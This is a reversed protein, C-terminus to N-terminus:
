AVPPEWLEIPNGEPDQIRAFRGVGDMEERHTAAIGAAELRDLLADLREVRLNLMFQRDQAFYDSDRPFMAFVTDGSEQAWSWKGDPTAQGSATADIALHDRYWASLKDPDTSRLFLGGIGVVRGSKPSDAM